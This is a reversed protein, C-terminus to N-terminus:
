AIRTYVVCYERCIVVFYVYPTNRYYMFYLLFGITNCVEPCSQSAQSALLFCEEVVDESLEEEWVDDYLDATSLNLTKDFKTSSISPTSQTLTIDLKAKKSASEFYNKARKDTSILNIPRKNLSLRNMHGAM